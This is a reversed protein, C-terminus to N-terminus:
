PTGSSVYTDAAPDYGNPLGLEDMLAQMRPDDRLPDLAPEIGLDGLSLDGEAASGELWQLATEHDGLQTYLAALQRLTLVGDAILIAVADRAAANLASDSSIDVLAPGLVRAVEPDAAGMVRALGVAHDGIVDASLGLQAGWMLFASHVQSQDG